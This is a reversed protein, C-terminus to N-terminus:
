AEAKGNSQIVDQVRVAVHELYAAPTERAHALEYLFDEFTGSAFEGALLSLAYVFRAQRFRASWEFQPAGNGELEFYQEDLQDALDRLRAATATSVGDGAELQRRYDSFETRGMLDPPAEGLLDRALRDRQVPTLHSVLDALKRDALALRSM